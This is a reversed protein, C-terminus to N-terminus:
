KVMMEFNSQLYKVNKYEIYNFVLDSESQFYIKFFINYEIKIYM